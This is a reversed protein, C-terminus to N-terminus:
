KRCASVWARNHALILRATGDTLRDDKSITIPRVWECATDIVEIETGRGTTACSANLLALLFISFTLKRM